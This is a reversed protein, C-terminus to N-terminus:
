RTRRSTSPSTPRRGSSGSSPPRRSPLAYYTADVEVLPFTSAYISSVSRPPTAARPYFVGGATMTPDTWSATGIRIHGGDPVEIPTAAASEVDEARASAVDAGPDRHDAM